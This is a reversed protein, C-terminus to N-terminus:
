EGAGTAGSDFDPGCENINKIKLAENDDFSSTKAAKCTQATACAYPSQCTGDANKDCVALMSATEPGSTFGSCIVFYMCTNSPCAQPTKACDRCGMLRNNRYSDITCFIAQAPRENLSFTIAVFFLLLSKRM